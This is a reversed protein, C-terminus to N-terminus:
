KTNIMIIFDALSEIDDDSLDPVPMKRLQFRIDKEFEPDKISKVIYQRDITVSDLKGSNIVLIRTNLVSNLSPGYLNEGTISHCMTCGTSSFLVAGKQPNEKHAINDKVPSLCGTLVLLIFFGPIIKMTIIGVKLVILHGIQENGPFAINKRHAGEHLRQPGEHNLTKKGCLSM